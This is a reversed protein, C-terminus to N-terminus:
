RERRGLTQMARDAADQLNVASARCYAAGGNPDFKEMLQLMAAAMARSAEAGELHQVYANILEIGEHMAASLQAVAPLNGCAESLRKGHQWALAYGLHETADFKAPALSGCGVLAAALLVVMAYLTRKM